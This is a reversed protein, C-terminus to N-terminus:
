KKRELTKHSTQKKKLTKDKIDKLINKKVNALYSAKKM